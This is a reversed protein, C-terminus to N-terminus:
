RSIKAILKDIVKDFDSHYVSGEYDNILEFERVANGFLARNYNEGALALDLEILFSQHMLAQKLYLLPQRALELPLKGKGEHIHLIGLNSEYYDRATNIPLSEVNEFERLFTGYATKLVAKAVKFDLERFTQTGFAVDYSTKIDM